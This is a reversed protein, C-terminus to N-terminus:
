GPRQLASRAQEIVAHGAGTIRLVLGRMAGEGGAPDQFAAGIRVSKTEESDSSGVEDDVLLEASSEISRDLTNGVAEDAAARDEAAKALSNWREGSGAWQYDSRGRGLWLSSVARAIDSCVSQQAVALGISNTSVATDSLWPYDTIVATLRGKADDYLLLAAGSGTPENRTRLNLRGNQNDARYGIENAASILQRLEATGSNVRGVLLDVRVGRRIATSAQEAVSRFAPEDAVPSVIAISTRATAFATALRDNHDARGSVIAEDTISLHTVRSITTRSADVVGPFARQSRASVPQRRRAAPKGSGSKTAVSRASQLLRGALAGTWESPLGRIAGSHIDVEVPLFHTQRSMLAIPGIQRVWEGGGRPLLKQVQAEDLSNRLIRERLVAATPMVDQLDRKSWSRADSHRAVQGAIREMVVIQPKAPTVAVSVPDHDAQLAASGAATLAFRTESGGVVAVWGATILTVAAEVLLREHVRFTAKLSNLTAGDTAIDALVAKELGSYPRGRAIEYPVKFRSVPVLAIM